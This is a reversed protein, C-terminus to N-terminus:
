LPLGLYFQGCTGTSPFEAVGPLHGWTEFGHKRFFALSPQNTDLVIAFINRYGSAKCWQIAHQLLASGVKLRRFDSHVYCSVEVTFRLAQRGPRYPSISLWGGLRSGYDCVFVPYRSPLHSEFWERKDATSFTSLDATMGGQLVAQNYISVIEDLDEPAATRNVINM